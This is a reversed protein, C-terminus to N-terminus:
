TAACWEQCTAHDRSNHAELMRRAAEMNAQQRPTMGHRANLPINKRPDNERMDALGGTEGIYQVKYDTSPDLNGYAWAHCLTHLGHMDSASLVEVFETESLDHTGYWAVVALHTTTTETM